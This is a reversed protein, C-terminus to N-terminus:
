QKHNPTRPAPGTQDEDASQEQVARQLAQGFGLLSWNRTALVDCAVHRGSGEAECVAELMPRVDVSSSNEMVSALNECGERIGAQCM